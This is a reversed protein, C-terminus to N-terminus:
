QPWTKNGKSREEAEFECFKGLDILFKIANNNLKNTIYCIQTESRSEKGLYMKVWFNGLANLLKSQANDDSDAFAIGVEELDIQIKM